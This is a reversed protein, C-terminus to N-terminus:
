RALRRLQGATLLWRLEAGGAAPPRAFTLLCAGGKKLEVFGSSEGTLLVEVLASLHPEHGVVAVTARGRQARLWPLLEAPRAAPALEAVRVTRLRGYALALVDATQTARVLPSTALLEIAPVLRQLGRAGKEFKKRGDGTLPREEDPRGSPAFAERDEAIAHRVVLLEM